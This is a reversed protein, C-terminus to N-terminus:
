YFSLFIFYFFISEYEGTLSPYASIVPVAIKRFVRLGPYIFNQLNRLLVNHTQPHNYLIFVSSVIVLLFIGLLKVVRLAKILRSSVKTDLLCLCEELIAEVQEVPINNDSAYNKINDIKTKYENFDM